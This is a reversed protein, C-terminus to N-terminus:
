KTFTNRPMCNTTTQFFRVFQLVVNWPSCSLANEVPRLGFYSSGWFAHLDHSLTVMNHQGQTAKPSSLAQKIREFLEEDHRFLCEAVEWHRKMDKEAYKDKSVEPSIIHSAHRCHRIKTVVCSGDRNFTDEMEYRIDEASPGTASESTPSPPAPRSDFYDLTKPHGRTERRPKKSLPLRPLSLDFTKRKLSRSPSDPSPM